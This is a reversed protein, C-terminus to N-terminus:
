LSYKTRYKYGQIAAAIDATTSLKQPVPRKYLVDTGTWGRVFVNFCIFDAIYLEKSTKNNNM